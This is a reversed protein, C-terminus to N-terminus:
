LQAGLATIEAAGAENLTVRGRVTIEKSGQGAPLAWGSPASDWRVTGSGDDVVGWCGTTPCVEALKGKVTVEQDKFAQPNATLEAIRTIKAHAPVGQGLQTSGSPAAVYYIGGGLVALIGIILAIRKM